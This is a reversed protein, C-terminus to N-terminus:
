IINEFDEKIQKATSMAIGPVQYGKVDSFLLIEGEQLYNKVFSETEFNEGSRKIKTTLVLDKLEQEITKDKNEFTKNTDKKVRIGLYATIDPNIYFKELDEM